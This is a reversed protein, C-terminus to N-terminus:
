HWHILGDRLEGVRWRDASLKGLPPQVNAFVVLHPCPGCVMGGEYKGSYFCMDKLKELGHFCLYDTSCSRPVDYAIARPPKEQGALEAVQHLVDATKDGFIVLGV